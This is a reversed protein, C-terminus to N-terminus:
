PTKGNKKGGQHRGISQEEGEAGQHAPIHFAASPFHLTFLTSVSVYLLVAHAPGSGQLLSVTSPPVTCTPSVSQAATAQTGILCM